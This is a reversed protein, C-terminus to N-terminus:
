PVNSRTNKNVVPVIVTWRRHRRSKARRVVGWPERHGARFDGVELASKAVPCHNGTQRVTAVKIGCVKWKEFHKMKMKCGILEKTNWATIAVHRIKSLPRRWNKVFENWSPWKIRISLNWRSLSRILLRWNWGSKQFSKTRLQGDANRFIQNIEDNKETSAQNFEWRLLILNHELELRRSNNQFQRYALLSDCRVSCIRIQTSSRSNRRLKYNGRLSQLM